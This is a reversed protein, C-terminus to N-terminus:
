FSLCAAVLRANRLLHYIVGVIGRGIKTNRSEEKEEEEMEEEREKMKKKHSEVKIHRRLIMKLNTFKKSLKAEDFDEEEEEYKFTTGCECKVKHEEYQYVLYDLQDTIGRVSRALMIVTDEDVNAAKKEVEKECLKLDELKTVLEKVDKKVELSRRIVLVTKGLKEEETDDEGFNVGVGTDELVKVLVENLKKVDVYEVTEVSTNEDLVEEEEEQVEVVEEKVETIVDVESEERSEDQEGGGGGEGVTAENVGQEEEQEEGQEEGQEVAAAGDGDESCKRKVGFITRQGLVRVDKPDEEPHRARLHDSYGQHNVQGKCVRCRIKRLSSKGSM